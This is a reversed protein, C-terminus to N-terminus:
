FEIGVLLADHVRAEREPWFLKSCFPSEFSESPSSHPSHSSSSQPFYTQGDSVVYTMMSVNTTGPQIQITSKLQEIKMENLALFIHLRNPHNHPLFLILLARRHVRIGDLTHLDKTTTSASIDKTDIQHPKYVSDLPPNERFPTLGSRRCPKGVAEFMEMPHDEILGLWGNMGGMENGGYGEDMGKLSEDMMEDVDLGVVLLELFLFNDSVADTSISFGFQNKLASLLTSKRHRRKAHPVTGITQFRAEYLEVIIIPEDIWEEDMDCKKRNEKM